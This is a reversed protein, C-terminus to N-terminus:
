AKVEFKKRLHRSIADVLHVYCSTLQGTARDVIMGPFIVRKGDKRRGSIMGADAVFDLISDVIIKGEKDYRDGKPKKPKVAKKPAKKKVQKV